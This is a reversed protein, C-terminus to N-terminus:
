ASRVDVSISGTINQLQRTHLQAVIEKTGVSKAKMTITQQVSEEADITSTYLKVPKVPHIGPGGVLLRCETLPLSLENKFSVDVKFEEGKDVYSPAAVHLDPRDIAFSEKQFFRQGTSLVKAQCFVAITADTAIENLYEKGEM